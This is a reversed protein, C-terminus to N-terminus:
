SIISGQLPQAMPEFTRNVRQQAEVGASESLGFHEHWPRADSRPGAVGAYRNKNVVKAVIAGIGFMLVFMALVIPVVHPNRISGIDDPDLADSIFWSGIDAGMRAIGTLCERYRAARSPVTVDHTAHLYTHLPCFEEGHCGPILVVEKNYLLRITVDHVDYTNTHLEWILTSNYPPNRGNFLQLAALTAALTSDHASLLVFKQHLHIHSLPVTEARAAAALRARKSVEHLLLGARLRHEENGRNTFNAVWEAVLSARYLLTEGDKPLPITHANQVRWTDVVHPIDALMLPEHSGTAYTLQHRLAAEAEHKRRWERSNRKWQQLRTHRPCNGGPILMGDDERPVSRISVPESHYPLGIDNAAPMSMGFGVGVDTPRGSEPPFLGFMQSYASMLTRDVASSMIHVQRRDYAGSIFNLKDIYHARLEAGLLYHAHAGIATLGGVGEPWEILPFKDSPFSYLPSRDGHRCLEIVLELRRDNPAPQFASCIALQVAILM